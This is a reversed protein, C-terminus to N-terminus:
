QRSVQVDVDLDYAIINSSMDRLSYLTKTGVGQGYLTHVVDGQKFDKFMWAKETRIRTGDNLVLVMSNPTSQIFLFGSANPQPAEKIECWIYSEKTYNKIQTDALYTDSHWSVTVEDGVRWTNLTGSYWYLSKWESGDELTITREKTSIAAIHHLWTPHIKPAIGFHSQSLATDTSLTPASIAPVHEFAFLPASFVFLLLTMIQRTM